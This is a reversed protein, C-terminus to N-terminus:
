LEAEIENWIREVLLTVTEVDEWESPDTHHVVSNALTVTTRNAGAEKLSSRPDKGSEWKLSGEPLNLSSEVIREPLLFEIDDVDLFEAKGGLQEIKRFKSKWVGRGAQDGDAIFYANPCVSIMSEPDIKEFNQGGYWMVGVRSAKGRPLLADLWERVYTRDAPGEVWVLAEYGLPGGYSGGVMSVVERADAVLTRSPSEGPGNLVKVLEEEEAIRLWSPDHTMLIIQPGDPRSGIFEILSDRAGPHLHLEPEDILVSGNPSRGIQYLIGLVRRMGASLNTLACPAGDVTAHRRVDSESIHDRNRTLEFAVDFTEKMGRQIFDWVPHGTKRAWELCPGLSNLRSDLFSTSPAQDIEMSIDSRVGRIWGGFIVSSMAISGLGLPSSAFFSSFQETGTVEDDGDLLRADVAPGEEETYRIRTQLTLGSPFGLDPYPSQDRLWCLPWWPEDLPDEMETKVATYFRDAILRSPLGGKLDRLEQTREQREATRELFELQRDVSIGADLCELFDDWLQLSVQVSRALRHSDRREERFEAPVEKIGPFRGDCFQLLGDVLTSKGSGNAGFVLNTGSHFDLTWPAGAGRLGSLTVSRLVSLPPGRLFLSTGVIRATTEEGVLGCRGNGSEAGM